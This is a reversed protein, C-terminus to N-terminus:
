QDQSQMGDPAPLANAAPQDTLTESAAPVTPTPLSNGDADYLAFSGDFFRVLIQLPNGSTKGSYEVSQVNSGLYKLFVPADSTVDYLFAESQPGFILMTRRQDPSNYNVGQSLDPIEAPPQQIEPHIVTVGNQADQYPYYNNDVYVYLVNTAAPWWWFGDAWFAWRNYNSDYWWWREAHHRTWYFSNGYYFGYWHNNTNDVYHAYKLRNIAHWYFHNHQTETNREAAIHNILSSNQVITQHPPPTKVEHQTIAAGHNDFAPQRLHHQDNVIHSQNQIHQPPPMPVHRLHIIVTPASSFSRSSAVANKSNEANLPSTVSFVICLMTLIKLIILLKNV